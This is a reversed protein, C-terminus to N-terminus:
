KHNILSQIHLLSEQLQAEVYKLVKLDLSAVGGKEGSKKFYSYQLDDDIEVSVRTKTHEM